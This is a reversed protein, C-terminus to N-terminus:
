GLATRAVLGVSTVGNSPVGVEPTSVFQVPSGTDDPMLPKPVPTAVQSAVGDLSRPGEALADLVAQELPDDSHKKAAPAKPVVWGLEQRGYADINQSRIWYTDEDVYQIKAFHQAWLATHNLHFASGLIMRTSSQTAQPFLLEASM